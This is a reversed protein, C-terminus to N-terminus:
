NDSSKCEAAEAYLMVNHILLKETLIFGNRRIIEILTCVATTERNRYYFFASAQFSWSCAKSGLHVRVNYRLFMIYQVDGHNIDLINNSM